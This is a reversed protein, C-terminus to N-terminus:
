TLEHKIINYRGRNLRGSSIDLYSVLSEIHSPGHSEVAYNPMSHICFTLHELSPGLVHLFRAIPSVLCAAVSSHTFNHIPLVRYHSRLWDLVNASTDNLTISRLRSPSDPYVQFVNEWRSAAKMSDCWWIHGLDLCKLSPHAVIFAAFDRFRDFTVSSLYLEELEPFGQILASLVKPHLHALTVSDIRLNKLRTLKPAIAPVVAVLYDSKNFIQDAEGKINLSKVFHSIHPSTELLMAFADARDASLLIDHFIHYRARSVWARSTICCARLALVDDHLHDIVQDILEAPLTITATRSMTDHM